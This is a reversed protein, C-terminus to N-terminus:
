NKLVKLIARNGNTNIEIFYMGAEGPVNLQLIKSNRYSQQLVTKGILTRIGVTIDDYRRDLEINIAGKTPNPYVTLKNEFNNELIGVSGAGLKLLFMNHSGVSTLNSTRPGPDFDVTGEFWGATYINNTGDIAISYNLDFTTGGISRAWIFNGAADLKAVFIDNSGLSILNVTGSGPDVDATDLFNGSLYVNEFSDVAISSGGSSSSTGGMSKAWIFNGAADLKSVFVNYIGVSFLNTTGPGPDFDVTDTYSGTTYVNGSLDVAISESFEAIAGGIKKAWVYDGAADLKSVFIDNSGSSTLNSTGAGPDFDATGAFSGTTYVNGSNDAAISTAEDYSNGGISRAWIFNGATDLKSIFIDSTGVSTLNSTGLGPDFDATRFFYGSTYVNGSNDLAITNANIIGTGGMRKAWVFNGIPDLKSIFIDGGGASTLNSTGAGPDFDVTGSFKGTTYVNGSNDVTISTAIDYGTGGIRKAWIINGQTDFKSIFIDRNGASILNITGPGPDFDATGIFFGSTYVNGSSDTAISRGFEIASSGMSEAWQFNQAQGTIIGIFITFLLATTKKM